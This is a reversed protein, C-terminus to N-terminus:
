RLYNILSLRSLRATLTYSVELQATLSTVRTSAEYPDVAELNDVQSALISSQLGIRTTATSVRAELDGLSTRLENLKTLGHNLTKIAERTLSATAAESLNEIGLDAIMVYAKGIERFAEVNATAKIAISETSTIRSVVATDSATSWNTAWATQGFEMALAGALFAELAQASISQVSPSTQNFGFAGAFATEVASAAPSGSEYTAVPKATVNQGAFLYSGNFTVNAASTFSKLRNEAQLKTTANNIKGQNAILTSLFEEADDAIGKLAGQMTSLKSSTLANSDKIGQLWDVDQRLTVLDRTQYGLALGADELRGTVVEKQAKALKAQLEITVPRTSNLLANTSITSSM